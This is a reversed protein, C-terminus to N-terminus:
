CITPNVEDEFEADGQSGISPLMKIAIRVHRLIGKYVSGCRGEGIKLTQNFDQTAEMIESFSPKYFRAHSFETNDENVHKALRKIQIKTNDSKEQLNDRQERFTILLNVAQIIKEELEKEAARAKSIRDILEPKQDKIIELEKMFQDRQNKMTEIGQTQTALLAGKEKRKTIEEM